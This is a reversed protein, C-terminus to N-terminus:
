NWFIVEIYLLVECLFISRFQPEVNFLLKYLYNDTNNGTNRGKKTIKGDYKFLKFKNIKSFVSLM